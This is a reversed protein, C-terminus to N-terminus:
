DQEWPPQPTFRAVLHDLLTRLTLPVFRRSAYVGYIGLELPEWEPLLRKLRGDRLCPAVLYTPQLAIGAGALAAQMLVSAENASFNGGVQVVTAMGARQFHWESRGFYSYTLCNHQALAAPTAPEGHRALYDPAACIVSRCVALKRAVLSPDLDNSIRIALDIREEVLNVTRDVLLLDVRTEPYRAVYDAIAPALQAQGFSAAATVRIPGRPTRSREGARAELAAVEALVQRCHALCEEGADTLSLRRTTRHLLREGLWSELEALYRTVMARSMDLRDAAATQSGQEIVEVFVRM